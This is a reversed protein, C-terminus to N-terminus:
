RQIATYIMLVVFFALMLWNAIWLIIPAQRCLLGFIAIACFVAFLLSIAGSPDSQHDFTYKTSASLAAVWGVVVFLRGM